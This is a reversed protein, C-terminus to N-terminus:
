PLLHNLASKLDPYRFEYGSGLLRSPLARTSTLMTEGAMDGLLARLAFAPVHFFAPRGLAHGLTETFEANTVPAPATFNV